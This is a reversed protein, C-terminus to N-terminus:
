EQEGAAIMAKYFKRQENKSSGIQTGCDTCKRWPSFPAEDRWLMKDTPEAPVLVQGDTAAKILDIIDSAPVLEIGDPYESGYDGEKGIDSLLQEIKNM